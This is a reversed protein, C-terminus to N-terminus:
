ANMGFVQYRSYQDVFCQAKNTFNVQSGPSWWPTLIGEANYQQGTNDFGHTLEHGIVVGMAGYQFYKPWGVDFVPVNMIGELFVFQNFNSDYYANVATPANDWRVWNYLISLYTDNFIYNPYAVMRDIADAKAICLSKTQEELWDFTSVQTKFAAIISSSMESVNGKTGTPLVYDAYPRALAMPMITQAVGICTTYRQPQVSLGVVASYDTYATLFRQDLNPLYQYVLQWLAYNELTILGHTASSVYPWSNQLQELDHHQLNLKSDHSALTSEFSAVDEIAQSANLTSNILGLVQTM